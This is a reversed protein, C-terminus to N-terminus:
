QEPHETAVSQPKAVPKEFRGDCKKCVYEWHNTGPAGGALVSLIAAMCARFRHDKKLMFKIDPSGCFPCYKLQEPIMQNEELLCMAADYNTDDVLIGVGTIANAQLGVM